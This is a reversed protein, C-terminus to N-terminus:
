NFNFFFLKKVSKIEQYLKQYREFIQPNLSSTTLGIHEIKKDKQRLPYHNNKYLLEKPLKCNYSILWITIFYM